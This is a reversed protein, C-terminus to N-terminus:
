VGEKQPESKEAQAARLQSLLEHCLQGCEALEAKRREALEAAQHHRWKHYSSAGLLYLCTAALAAIIWSLLVTM